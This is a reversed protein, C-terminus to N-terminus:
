YKEELKLQRAKTIIESMSIDAMDPVYIPLNAIYECWKETLLWEYSSLKVNRLRSSDIGSGSSIMRMLLQEKSMEASVFFTSILNNNAKQSNLVLQIALATKGMSPRAGIIIM